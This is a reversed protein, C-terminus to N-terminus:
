QKRDFFSRSEINEQQGPKQYNIPAAVQTSQLANVSFNVFELSQHILDKNLKNTEDLRNALEVIEKKVKELTQSVELKDGIKEIIKTVTIDKFSIGTVLSVDKLLGERRKELISLRGIFAEERDMIETLLNLDKKVIADTKYTALTQLGEYCEKQDELVTVLDYIIGAM